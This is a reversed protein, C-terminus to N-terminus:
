PLIKKCTLCRTLGAMVHPQHGFVRCVLAPLLFRIAFGILLVVALVNIFAEIRNM